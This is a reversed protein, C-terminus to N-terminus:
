LSSLLRRIHLSVVASLIIARVPAGEMIHLIPNLLTDLTSLYGQVESDTINLNLTNEIEQRDSSNNLSEISLEIHHAATSMSYM